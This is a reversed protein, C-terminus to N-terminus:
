PYYETTWELLPRVVGEMNRSFDGRASGGELNDVVNFSVAGIESFVLNRPSITLLHSDVYHIGEALLNGPVTVQSIYRGAPRPRKRWAPDQDVTIFVVDGNENVLGFNPLLVHDPELLDFIMEFLLEKRIDISDAVDQEKTAVRVQRLRAIKGGPADKLDEWKRLATNGSGSRLYEGVVKTAPGDSILRGQKILVARECLRTIAPMNHSVFVVTRGQKSADDMKNICKKQFDMDGVALVEDVILIDPELHAAVSFALRVRMGSSYRKVPTDIFKEIGSFDVIRDFRQDVEKKRMGLITGNLYVNERGTLDPHFGTGVELLSSIRGHIKAYGRTPITVRSLIKLLTSKGAGNRGIIAIREGKRVNFSIDRLAWIISNRSFDDEENYNNLIDNFKYLSRYKRFNNLPSKIYALLTQAFNDYIRAKTGIRYLKSINNVEVAINSANM